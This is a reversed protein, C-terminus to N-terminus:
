PFHAFVPNSLVIAAGDAIGVQLFLNSPSLGPPLPLTLNWAGNTDTAIMVIDPLLPGIQIPCAPSPVPITVSGLGFGVLGLSNPPALVLDLTAVFGPGMAPVILGALLPIRGSAAVCGFGYARAFTQTMAAPVFVAGKVFSAPNPSNLTTSLLTSVGSTNIVIIDDNLDFGLLNEGAWLTLSLMEDYDFGSITVPTVTNTLTDIREFIENGNSSGLGSCHYLFGDAGFGITEGDTGNGLTLVQTAQATAPNITFLTEPVNAGDGTVGFLTGDFRFALGAFNDFLTGVVTAAGTQTNLTALKRAGGGSERIIAFLQGSVPDLTLGNCVQVSGLSTTLQVSRYTTGTVPNVARLVGDFSNVTLLEDGQAPLPMRLVLSLMAVVTSICLIKM